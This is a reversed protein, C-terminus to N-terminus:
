PNARHNKGLHREKNRRIQRELTKEVQDIAAYMDTASEEAVFQNGDGLLDFEVIQNIKEVRFRVNGTFKSGFHETLKLLKQEAYDKLADSSELNKFFYNVEM